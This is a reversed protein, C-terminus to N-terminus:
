WARMNLLWVVIVTVATSDNVLIAEEPNGITNTPGRGVSLIGAVAASCDERAVAISCNVEPGFM